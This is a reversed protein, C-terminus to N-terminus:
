GKIEHSLEGRMKKRHERIKIVVGIASAAIAVVSTAITCLVGIALANQSLFQMTSIHDVAIVGTSGVTTATTINRIADIRDTM